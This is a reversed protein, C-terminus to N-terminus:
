QLFAISHQLQNPSLAPWAANSTKIVCLDQAECDRLSAEISSCTLAAWRHQISQVKMKGSRSFSRERWSRRTELTTDLFSALKQRASGTIAMQLTIAFAPEQSTESQSSPTGGKDGQLSHLCLENPHHPGRRWRSLSHPKSLLLRKPQQRWPCQGASPTYLEFGQRMSDHMMCTHSMCQPAHEPALTMQLAVACVRLLRCPCPNCGKACSCRPEMSQLTVILATTPRLFAHAHGAM